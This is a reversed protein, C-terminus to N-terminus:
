FEFRVMSGGLGAAPPASRTTLGRIAFWAAVGLSVLGVGLSADAVILKTHVADVDSAQCGPACTDRLHNADSMGLVGFVGFTALAAVGLGGFVYGGAPVSPGPGPTEHFAPPPAQRPQAVALAIVRGKEGANVIVSQEVAGTPGAAQVRVTHPGPDLEIPTGDLPRAVGDVTLTASALDRGAADRAVVVISPTRTRIDELWATCDRRIVGPCNAATCSALIERSQLLAGRDRAAQGEEAAKICAMTEPEAAQAPLPLPWAVLGLAGALTLNLLAVAPRGM